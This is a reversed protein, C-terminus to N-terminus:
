IHPACLVAILSVDRDVSLEASLHLLVWSSPSWIINGPLAQSESSSYRVLVKCPPFGWKLLEFRCLATRSLPIDCSQTKECTFILRICKMESSASHREEGGKGLPRATPACKPKPLKRFTVEGWPTGTYHLFPRKARQDWEEWWSSACRLPPYLQGWLFRSGKSRVMYVWTLELFSTSSEVSWESNGCYVFLM